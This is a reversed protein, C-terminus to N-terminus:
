ENRLRAALERDEELHYGPHGAMLEDRVDWMSFTQEYKMPAIAEARTFDVGAAKLM